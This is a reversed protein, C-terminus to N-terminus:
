KAFHWTYVTRQNEGVGIVNALVGFRQGNEWGHAMSRAARVMERWALGETAYSSTSWSDWTKGNWCLMREFYFTKGHTEIMTIRRANAPQAKEAM